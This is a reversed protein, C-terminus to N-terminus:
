PRFDFSLTVVAKTPQGDATFPNFKWKQVASVASQTLLPNGNVAKVNEVNGSADILAEVEVKGAVKMQRAVPSYAPQPKSTANKLADTATIRIDALASGAAVLMGFAAITLTKKM